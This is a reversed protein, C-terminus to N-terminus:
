RPALQAKSLATPKIRKPYRRMDPSAIEKRVTARDLGFDRAIASISWGHRRLTHIEMHIVGSQM